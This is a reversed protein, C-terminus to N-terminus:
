HQFYIQLVALIPCLITLIIGLIKDTDKIASFFDAKLLAKKLNIGTILESKENLSEAM